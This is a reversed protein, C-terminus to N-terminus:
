EARIGVKRILQSWRAAEAKLFSVFEEPTSTGPELLASEFRDKVSPYQVAAAIERNLYMVINRPTQAPALVGYWNSVRYDKVGAEEFTPSDPLAPSRKASSVALGRLRGSRIFPAAAPAPPFIAELQGGVVDALAPGSGKFPIHNLKVGTQLQFLEGAVHSITGTGGSAMNVQGPHSKTLAIFEKVSRVPLRPHVTLVVPTSAVLTVPEFDRVPDYNVNPYVYPNIAHPADALIVTYGDPASKAVAETGIIGTAGPRNEVIVTRGVSESMRGALLRATVDNGGGPAYAVIIRIPKAPFTEAAIAPQHAMLVGMVMLASFPVRAPARSSTPIDFSRRGVHPRCSSRDRNLTADIM